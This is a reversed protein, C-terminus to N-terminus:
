AVGQGALPLERVCHLAVLGGQPGLRVLGGGMVAQGAGEGPGSAGVFRDIM